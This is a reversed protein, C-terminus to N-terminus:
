VVSKRDLLTKNRGPNNDIMVVREDTAFYQFKVAYLDAYDVAWTERM